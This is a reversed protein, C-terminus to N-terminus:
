KSKLRQMHSLFHAFLPFYLTIIKGVIEDAIKHNYTHPTQNRSKIMEMWGEGEAILGKNFAERIADPSGTINPNGQYSFYDKMVNWALEHTFKFAQIIGQKELDSLAREQALHVASALQSFATGYNNFRQEWRINASM